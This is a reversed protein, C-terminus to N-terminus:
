LCFSFLCTRFGFLWHFSKMKSSFLKTPSYIFPRFIVFNVPNFSTRIVSNILVRAHLSCKISVHALCLSGLVSTLSRSTYSVIFPTNFFNHFASGRCIPPCFFRFASFFWLLPTWFVFGIPPFLIFIPFVFSNEFAPFLVCAEKTLTIFM